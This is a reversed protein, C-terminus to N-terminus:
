CSDVTDFLITMKYSNSIIKSFFPLFWNKGSDQCFYTKAPLIGVRSHSDILVNYRQINQDKLMYMEQENTPNAYPSNM